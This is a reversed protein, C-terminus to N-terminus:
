YTMSVGVGSWEGSLGGTADELEVGLEVEMVELCMRASEEVSVFHTERYLNVGVRFRTM